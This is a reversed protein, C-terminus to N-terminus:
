RFYSHSLRQHENTLSPLTNGAHAYMADWGEKSVSRRAQHRTGANVARLCSTPGASHSSGAHLLLGKMTCRERFLLAVSLQAISLMQARECGDLELSTM